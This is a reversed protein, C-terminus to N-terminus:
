SSPANLSVKVYIDSAFDSTIKVTVDGNGMARGEGAAADTDAVTIAISAGASPTGITVADAHIALKDTDLSEFKVDGAIAVWRFEGATESFRSEQLLATVTITASLTAAATEDADTDPDDEVAPTYVGRYPQGTAVLRRQPAELSYVNITVENSKVDGIRAQIKASGAGHTKITPSQNSDETDVTAVSANSTTWTFTVGRVENGDPGMTDDDQKADYATAMVTTTGDKAIPGTANSVLIIGKVANQVRLPIEIKIGRDAAKLIIKTNGRRTGMITAGSGDDTEEVSALVPDDVEWSFMVPVVSGDQALASAVFTLSGDVLMTADRIKEARDGDGKFDDASYFKRADDKDENGEWVVVHHVTALVNGPLDSPVGSEGKEGQPGMPGEPGREGPDGKEGKEGQPGQAGTDGKDGKPGQAGDAGAPGAPGAPGMAGDSGAPGQPGAPGASGSPGAPGTKGECGLMSLAFALVAIILYHM